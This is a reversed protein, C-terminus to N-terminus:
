PVMTDVLWEGFQLGQVKDSIRTDAAVVQTEASSLETDAADVRDVILTDLLGSYSELIGATGAAMGLSTVVRDAPGKLAKGGFLPSIAVVNGAAAIAEEVGTIRLIPWISLPPNSPAIVVLDAQSIRALLGPAPEADAIGAYDLAVAEDRHGRTVFYDQFSLWTGDDIQVRTRIKDNSAPMVTATAGLESAIQATVDALQVGNRLAETRILCNALDRDGLRFSTDIGTAAMADMVSFTDDAIGWGHPGEIGALTYTVTDLDAAVYAGYMYDDDGVNVVVTLREPAVVGSLARAMRAGGVGGCLVVVDIDRYIPRSELIGGM